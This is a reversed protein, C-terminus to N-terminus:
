EYNYRKRANNNGKKTYKERALDLLSERTNLEPSEIACDLLYALTKGIERGEFGMRVLEDGSIELQAISHPARDNDLWALARADSEGLIVSACLAYRASDGLEACLKSVGRPDTIKRHANAAM